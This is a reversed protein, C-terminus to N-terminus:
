GRGGGRAAMAANVWRMAGPALRAAASALRV